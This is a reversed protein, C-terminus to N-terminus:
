RHEHQAVLPAFILHTLTVEALWTEDTGQTTEDRPAGLRLESLNLGVCDNALAYLFVLLQKLTVNRLEVHTPQEQYASNGLRRPSQPDIQLIYTLPLGAGKAATEISHAVETSSRAKTGVLVPKQRLTKIQRALNRCAVLDSATAAADSCSATFECYSWGALALLGIFVIAALVDARRLSEKM